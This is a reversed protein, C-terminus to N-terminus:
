SNGGRVLERGFRRTPFCLAVEYARLHDTRPQPRGCAIDNGVELGLIKAFSVSENVVPDVPVAESGEFDYEAIREPWVWIAIKTQLLTAATKCSTQCSLVAPEYCTKLLSSTVMHLVQQLSTADLENCVLLLFLIHM